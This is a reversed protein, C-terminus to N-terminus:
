RGAGWVGTAVASGAGLLGAVIRSKGSGEIASGTGNIVNAGGTACNVAATLGPGADDQTLGYATPATLAVTATAQAGDSINMATAKSLGLRVAPKEIATIFVPGAPDIARATARVETAGVGVSARVGTGAARATRFATFGGKLVAGGPIAGLLDGALTLDDGLNAMSTPLLGSIGYQRAHAGAAAASLLIAPLAFAPFFIAAVGCVGAAVTLLDAGHDKLWTGVKSLRGPEPPAKSDAAKRIATATRHADSRHGEALEHAQSRLGTLTTTASDLLEAAADLHKRATNYRQEAAALSTDDAFSKGALALDPAAAATRHAQEAQARDQRATVAARALEAARPQHETLAQYWVDLAQYAATISDAADQLYGPLKGFRAAFAKAAEGTWQGQDGSIQALTTHVGTLHQSVRRLSSSLGAVAAPDGPTPNFGLGSWDPAPEPSTM